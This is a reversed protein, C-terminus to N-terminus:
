KFWAELQQVTMDYPHVYYRQHRPDFENYLVHLWGDEFKVLEIGNARCIDETTADFHNYPGCFVRAKALACSALISMEQSKRGLLRHDVHLLGHAARIIWPENPLNPLGCQEGKYYATLSSQATLHPDHVRQKYAEGLQEQSFVIPSVCLMVQANTHKRILEIQSWLRDMNTNVSIDDFRFLV